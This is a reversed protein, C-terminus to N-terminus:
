PLRRWDMRWEVLRAYGTRAKLQFALASDRGVMLTRRLKFAPTRSGNRGGRATCAWRFGAAAAAAAAGASWRGYPYALGAPAQPLHAALTERARALAAETEGPPIGDLAQHQWGHAGIEVGAQALEGLQPWDM